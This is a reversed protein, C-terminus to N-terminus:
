KYVRINSFIIAKTILFSIEPNLVDRYPAIHYHSLYPIIHYSVIRYPATLHLLEPDVIKFGSKNKPMFFIYKLFKLFM